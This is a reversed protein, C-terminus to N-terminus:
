EGGKLIKRGKSTLFINRRDQITKTLYGQEVLKDIIGSATQRCKYGAVIAIEQHTPAYRKTKTLLDIIELIQYQIKTM